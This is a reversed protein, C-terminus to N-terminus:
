LILIIIADINLHSQSGRLIFTLIVRALHIQPHPQHPLGQNSQLWLRRRANGQLCLLLGIIATTGIAAVFAVNSDLKLAPIGMFM